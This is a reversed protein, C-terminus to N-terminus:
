AVGPGSEGGIVVQHIGTLDLSPLGDFLPEASIWRVHASMERLKDARWVHRDVEITVGVWIHPPLHEREGEFGRARLSRWWRLMVGPRKTLLIYTHRPHDLMQRYVRDIWEFPHREFWLDTMSCVFVGPGERWRAPLALAKEDLRPADAGGVYDPCGLRMNFAAAYCHDCAPSNPVKRCTWNGQTGRLPNWSSGEVVSGDPRRTAVWEITTKSGM